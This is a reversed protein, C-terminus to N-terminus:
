RRRRAGDDDGGRITQGGEQSKTEQFQDALGVNDAWSVPLALPKKRLHDVPVNPETPAPIHHYNM